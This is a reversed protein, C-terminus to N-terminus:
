SSCDTTIVATFFDKRLVNAVLFLSRFNAIEEDLNFVIIVTHDIGPM